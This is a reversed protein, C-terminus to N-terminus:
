RLDRAAGAAVAAKAIIAVGSLATAQAGDTADSYNAAFLTSAQAGAPSATDELVAALSASGSAVLADNVAAVNIQVALLPANSIM